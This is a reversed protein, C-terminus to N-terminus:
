KMLASSDRLFLKGFTQVIRMQIIRVPYYHSFRKIDYEMITINGYVAATGEDNLLYRKWASQDTLDHKDQVLLIMRVRVVGLRAFCGRQVSNLLSRMGVVPALHKEEYTSRITRFKIGQKFVLLLLVYTLNSTYTSDVLQLYIHCVM